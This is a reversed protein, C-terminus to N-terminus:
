VESVWSEALIETRCSGCLRMDLEKTGGDPTELRVRCAETRADENCNLCIM